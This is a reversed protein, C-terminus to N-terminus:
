TQRKCFRKHSLNQEAFSQSISFVSNLERVCFKKELNQSKASIKVKIFDMWEFQDYCSIKRERRERTKGEM